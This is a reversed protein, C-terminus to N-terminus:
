LKNDGSLSDTHKRRLFTLTKQEETQVSKKPIAGLIKIADLYYQCVLLPDKNTYNVNKM